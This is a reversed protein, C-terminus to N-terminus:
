LAFRTGCHFVHFAAATGAGDKGQEQEQLQHRLRPHDQRMVTRMLLRHFRGSMGAQAGAVLGIQELLFRGARMTDGGEAGAAAGAGRNGANEGPRERDLPVATIGQRRQGQVPRIRDAM